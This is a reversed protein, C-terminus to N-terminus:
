RGGLEYLEVVNAVALAKGRPRAAVYVTAAAILYPFLTIVM